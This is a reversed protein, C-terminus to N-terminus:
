SNIDERQFAHYIMADVHSNNLIEVLKDYATKNHKYLEIATVSRGVSVIVLSQYHKQNSKVSEHAVLELSELWKKKRKRSKM